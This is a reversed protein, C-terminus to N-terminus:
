TQNVFLAHLDKQAVQSLHSSLLAELISNPERHLLEECSVTFATLAQLSFKSRNQVPYSNVSPPRYRPVHLHLFM